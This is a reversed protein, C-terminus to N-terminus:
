DAKENLEKETPARKAPEKCERAFHGSQYCHLCRRNQILKVAMQGNIYKNKPKIPGKNAGGGNRTAVANVQEEGAEEENSSCTRGEDAQMRNASATPQSTASGGRNRWSGGGANSGLRKRQQERLAHQTTWAQSLAVECQELTQPTPMMRMMESWVELDSAVVRQKFVKGLMLSRSTTDPYQNLPYARQAYERFTTIFKLVEDVGDRKGLKLDDLRAEYVRQTQGGGMKEMFEDQIAPWEAMEPRLLGQRVLTNLDDRKNLLWTMAPGATAASIVLELQGFVENEMYCMLEFNVQRVFEM